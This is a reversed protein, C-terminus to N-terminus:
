LVAVGGGAPGPLRPPPPLSPPLLPLGGRDDVQQREVRVPMTLAETDSQSTEWQPSEEWSPHPHNVHFTWLGLDGPELLIDHPFMAQFALRPDSILPQHAPLLDLQARRQERGKWQGHCVGWLLSLSVRPGSGQYWSSGAGQLVPRVGWSGQCPGLQRPPDNWDLPSWTKPPPKLDPRVEYIPSQCSILGVEEVWAQGQRAELGRGLESPCLVPHM